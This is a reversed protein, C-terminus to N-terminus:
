SLKKIRALFAEESLIEVGLSQAKKFKSGPNEGVVVFSTKKSVSDATKGGLTRVKAEAENRTMQMLEGTFVITKGSLGGGAVVVPEYRPNVGHTKLKKLQDKVRSSAFYEHISSSVVPGVDSTGELDELSAQSLKDLSLFKEALVQASKEGVNPIGFGYILKELPQQRSKNIAEVLNEARKDAFLDLELFDEKGLSYIDALDRIKKKTLLQAVVVDGMGEIDM